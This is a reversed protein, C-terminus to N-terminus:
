GGAMMPHVVGAPLRLRDCGILFKGVKFRNRSDAAGAYTVGLMASCRSCNVESVTYQGTTYLQTLMETSISVNSALSTLYGPGSMAHYNSSLIDADKFIFNGCAVCKYSSTDAEDHDEEEEEEELSVSTGASTETSTPEAQPADEPAPEVAGGCGRESPAEVSANGQDTSLSGPGVASTETSSCGSRTEKHDVANDLANDGVLLYDDIITAGASDAAPSAGLLDWDWGDQVASTSAEPPGGDEKLEALHATPSEFADRERTCEPGPADAQADRCAQEASPRRLFGFVM